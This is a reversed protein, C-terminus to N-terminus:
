YEFTKLLTDESCSTSQIPVWLNQLRCCPFLAHRLNGCEACRLRMTGLEM